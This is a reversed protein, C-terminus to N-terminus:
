AARRRRAVGLALLGLGFIALTGPEPVPITNSSFVTGNQGATAQAVSDSWSTGGTGGSVDTLFGVGQILTNYFLKIRGGAGGGGGSGFSDTSGNGGNGGAASLLGDLDLTSASLLIGGGAGGGGAPTGVGAAFPVGDGGDTGDALISGDLDIMNALLLIAAGGDGGEGSTGTDDNYRSGSGGGSGAMIAVSMASGYAGGGQTAAPTGLAQGSAGGNGGYAGGGGGSGHINCGFLGGGGGGPGGGANGTPTGTAPCGSSNNAVAAGGAFGAGRGDLTSGAGTNIINAQVNFTVGAAITVTAGAAISMTGVNTFAGGGIIDGDNLTLDAGGFDGGLIVAGNAIGASGIGLIFAAAFISGFRTKKSYLL